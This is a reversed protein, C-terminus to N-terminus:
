LGDLNKRDDNIVYKLPRYLLIDQSVVPPSLLFENDLSSALPLHHELDIKASVTLNNKAEVAGLNLSMINLVITTLVSVYDM